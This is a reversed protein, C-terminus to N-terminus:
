SLDTVGNDIADKANRSLHPTRFNNATDYMVGRFDVRTSRDDGAIQKVDASHTGLTVFAPFVEERSYSNQLLTSCFDVYWSWGM